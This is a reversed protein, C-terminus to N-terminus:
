SSKRMVNLATPQIMRNSLSLLHFVAFMQTAIEIQEQIRRDITLPVSSHVQAVGGKRERGNTECGEGTRAQRSDIWMRETEGGSRDRREAM